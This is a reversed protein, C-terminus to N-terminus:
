SRLWDYPRTPLVVWEMVKEGRLAEGGTRLDRVPGCAVIELGIIAFFETPVKSSTGRPIVENQPPPQGTLVVFSVSESVRAGDRNRSLKKQRLATAIYTRKTCLKTLHTQLSYRGRGAFSAINSQGLLLVLPVNM